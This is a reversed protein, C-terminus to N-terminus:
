SNVKELTEKKILNYDKKEIFEKTIILKDEKISELEFELEEFTGRLITQLGRAGTKNAIAKKAVEHLAEKEFLLKKGKYAFMKEYQKIISDKPETLVSILDSEKLKNLRVIYPTRGLIEPMIGYKRLDEPTVLDYIKDQDLDAIKNSGAFGIEKSNLRDKIIGEIGEFAGALIFLVNKTDFEIMEGNPHKRGGSPQVRMVAGEIMKLLASQVGEGSVDRTISPNESKRSTKDFEDLFVIGKQAREIDGGAEALLKALVSEVDDGVYGAETLSTADAIVFPVGLMRAIVKAFLTKGTGTPGVMMLNDKKIEIGDNKENALMRIVHNHTSVSLARKASEQGVVYECLKDYIMKPTMESLTVLEPDHEIEENKTEEEVIEGCLSICENCIYVGPGAVLKKVHEQAKGCFSCKLDHENEHTHTM